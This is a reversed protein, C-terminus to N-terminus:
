NPPLSTKPQAIKIVRKKGAKLLPYNATKLNDQSVKNAKNAQPANLPAAAKHTQRTQNATIILIETRRNPALCAKIDSRTEDPCQMVPSSAGQAILQVRDLSIGKELLYSTVAEARRLSLKANYDESGLRDTHGVIQIPRNSLHSASERLWADLMAHGAATLEASDFEFHTLTDKLADKTAPATSDAPAPPTIPETIPAAVPAAIPEAVLEAIPEAVPAAVPAAVPEAIPEAVPEAVPEAIVEGVPAPKSTPSATSLSELLTFPNPPAAPEPSHAPAPLHIQPSLMAPMQPIWAQPWTAYPSPAYPLSGYPLSPMQLFAPGLPIPILSQNNGTQCTPATGALGIPQCVQQGSPLLQCIQNITYVVLRACFDDYTQAAAPLSSTASVLALVLTKNKM